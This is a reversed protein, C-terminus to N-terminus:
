EAGLLEWFEEDDHKRRIEAEERMIEGVREESRFYAIADNSLVPLLVTPGGGQMASWPYDEIWFSGCTPCRLLTRWRADDVKVISLRPRMAASWEIRAKLDAESTSPSNHRDCDCSM